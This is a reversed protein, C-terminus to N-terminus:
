GLTVLLVSTSVTTQDVQTETILKEEGCRLGPLTTWGEMNIQGENCQLRITNIGAHVTEEEEEEGSDEM